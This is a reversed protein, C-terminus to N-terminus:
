KSFRVEESLPKEVKPQELLKKDKRYLKQKGMIEALVRETTFELFTFFFAIAVPLM